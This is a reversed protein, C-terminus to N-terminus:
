RATAARRSRRLAMVQGIEPARLALSLGGYIAVGALVGGAVSVVLGWRGDLGFRGNLLHEVGWAGGAMVLSVVLARVMSRPVARVGSPSMPQALRESTAPVAAARLSELVTGALRRRLAMVMLALNLAGSIATGLALGAERLPTQLLIVNAVLNVAVCVLALRTPTRHDRLAYFAKTLLSQVSVIPLSVCLMVLVLASRQLMEPSSHRGGFLLQTIPLALAALGAAAPLAVFAILRSSNLLSATFKELENAAAFRSMLPFMATGLAVGVLGLPFQFLRTAYAYSAVAGDGPVLLEALLQDAFTNVQFVALAFLMPAMAKFTERLGAEGLVLRPRSFLGARRLDPMQLVWQAVGSALVGLSMVVIATHPQHRLPSLLLGVLVAVWLLNAAAPTIAPLGFRGWCNLAGAQLASLCIFIVYPLLITLYQRFVQFKGPDGFWHEPMLWVVALVLACVAGLGLGLLTAMTGLLRRTAEMDGRLRYRTLVPILASALAGEGFLKRFLNPITFAIFFADIERSFGFLMATLVDRALGSIRSVLTALSIVLAHGLVGRSPAAARRSRQEEEIRVSDAAIEGPSLPGCAAVPDEATPTPDPQNPTEPM